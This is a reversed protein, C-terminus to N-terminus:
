LPQYAMLGLYGVLNSNKQLFTNQKLLYLGNFHQYIDFLSVMGFRKCYGKM